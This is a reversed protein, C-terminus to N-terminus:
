KSLVPAPWQQASPTAFWCIAGLTPFSPNGRDRQTIGRAARGTLCNLDICTPVETLAAARLRGSSLTRSCWADRQEKALLARENTLDGGSRGAAKDRLHDFARNRCDDQDYKGSALKVIVGKAVYDSITERTCNLHVALATGTVGSIRTIDFGRELFAPAVSIARARAV